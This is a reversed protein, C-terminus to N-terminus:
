TLKRWGVPSVVSLLARGRLRPHTPTWAAAAHSLATFRAAAAAHSLATFRGASVACLVFEYALGCEM